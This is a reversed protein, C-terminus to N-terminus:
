IIILYQHIIYNKWLESVEIELKAELRDELQAEALNHGAARGGCAPRGTPGLPVLGHLCAILRQLEKFSIM